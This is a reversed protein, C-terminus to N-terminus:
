VVIPCPGSFSIVAAYLIRRVLFASTFSLAKPNHYDVNLYLSEYHRKFAAEGLKAKKARIFKWSFVVFAISYLGILLVLVFDIRGETTDLDTAKISALLTIITVLFTQLCARLPSNFLLKGEIVTALKQCQPCCKPLCVRKCVILLAIMAANLM